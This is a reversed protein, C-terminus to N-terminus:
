GSIDTSNRMVLPARAPVRSRNSFDTTVMPRWGIFSRRNSALLSMSTEPRWASSREAPPLCTRYSRSLVFPVNTFPWRILSCSIASPSRMTKPTLPGCTVKWMTGTSIIGAVGDVRTSDGSPRAAAAFAFTDGVGADAVAAFGRRFVSTRM